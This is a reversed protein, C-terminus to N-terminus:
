WPGTQFRFDQAPSATWFGPGTLMLQATFVLAGQSIPHFPRFSRTGWKGAGIHSARRKPKAYIAERVARANPIRPQQAVSAGARTAAQCCDRWQAVSMAPLTELYVFVLDQAWAGDFQQKSLQHWFFQEAESGSLNRRVRHRVALGHDDHPVRQLFEELASLLGDRLCVTRRCRWLLHKVHTEEAEPQLGWRQEPWPVDILGHERLLNMVVFTMRKTPAAPLRHEQARLMAAFYRCGQVGLDDITPPPEPPM